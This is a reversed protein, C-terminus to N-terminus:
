ESTIIAQSLALAAEYAAEISAGFSWDGGVYVGHEPLSLIGLPQQKSSPRAYPWYHAYTNLVSQVPLDFLDCFGEIAISIAKNEGVKGLDDSLKNALQVVWIDGKDQTDCTVVLPRKPKSSDRVISQISQSKLYVLDVDSAVLQAVKLAVSWCSTWSQSFDPLIIPLDSQEILLQSQPWPATLIVKDFSGTQWCDNSKIQWGQGGFYRIQSIFSNTHLTANKIWHSCAGSMNPNFVYYERDSEISELSSDFGTNQKSVFIKKPWQSAVGQQCLAHMFDAFQRNKVPVITAGLDCQGWDTQTTNARGGCGSSTEFLSVDISAADLFDALLCGSIGAGVIAVKM